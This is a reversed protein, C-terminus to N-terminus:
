AGDGDDGVFGATDDLTKRIISPAFASVDITGISGADGSLGGSAKGTMLM